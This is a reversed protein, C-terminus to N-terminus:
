AMVKPFSAMMTANVLEGRRRVIQKLTGEVEAGLKKLFIRFARNDEFLQWIIKRAGDAFMHEIGAKALELKLSTPLAREFVLHGLYMGDGCNTGWVVGLPIGDPSKFFYQLGGTEIERKWTKQTEQLSHPSQDDLMQDEFEQMWRFLDPCHKEPMPSVVKFNVEREM